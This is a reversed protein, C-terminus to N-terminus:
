ISGEHEWQCDLKPVHMKLSWQPVGSQSMSSKIHPLIFVADWSVSWIARLSQELSVLFTLLYTIKWSPPISTSVCMNKWFTEAPRKISALWSSCGDGHLIKISKWTHSSVLIPNVFNAESFIEWSSKGPLEAPLSDVQLGSWPEIGSQSSRKSFPYAVWVLVRPRGQNKLCYLFQRCQPLGSNSGQTPFIGQLSMTVWELM